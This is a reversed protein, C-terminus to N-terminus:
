INSTHRFGHCTIIGNALTEHLDDPDHHCISRARFPICTGADLRLTINAALLIPMLLQVTFYQLFGWPVFRVRPANKTNRSKLVHFAPADSSRQSQIIYLETGKTNHKDHIKNVMSDVICTNPLSSLVM